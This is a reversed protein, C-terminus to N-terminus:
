GKGLGVREFRSRGVLSRPVCVCMGGVWLWGDMWRDTWGDTWGDMLGGVWGGTATMRRETAEVITGPDIVRLLRNGGDGGL